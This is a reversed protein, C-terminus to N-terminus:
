GHTAPVKRFPRRQYKEVALNHELLTSSFQHSGDNRSVFYLYPTNAPYLAAEIARAGPNAIPGPPLGQVRYTNYPSLSSLDRKRINGDFGTLGYIVTPDSQLPIKRRLRNHFVASIFQRETEMSTEKEIVSALTLVQHTSLKLESARALLEPTLNQRLKEVLTRIVEQARTGRAFRYTDPFLYGELSDADIELSHIFSHDRCLRLFEGPDTVAHHGLVAAVQSMTYGEPITVPHLVVRGALLKALIDAPLMAANLEYEGPLVKRDAAHAKGLLIFASRSKILHARELSTAVQQFTAGEQVIVIKSPPREAQGVAPSEIWRMVQYAAM